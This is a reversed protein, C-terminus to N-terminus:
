PLTNALCRIDFPMWAMVTANSFDPSRRRTSFTAGSANVSGSCCGMSRCPLHISQDADNDTLVFRYIARDAAELLLVLPRTNQFFELLAREEGLRGDLPPHLFCLGDATRLPGKCFFLFDWVCLARQGVDSPKRNENACMRYLKGRLSM